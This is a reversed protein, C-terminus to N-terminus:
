REKAQPSVISILELHQDSLYEELIATYDSDWYGGCADDANAHIYEKLSLLEGTFAKALDEAYSHGNTILNKIRKFMDELTDLYANRVDEVKASCFWYTQGAEICNFEDVRNDIDTYYHQKWDPDEEKYDYNKRYCFFYGDLTHHVHPRYNVKISCSNCVCISRFAFDEFREAIRECLETDLTYLAGFICEADELNIKDVNDTNLPYWWWKVKWCPYWAAKTKSVLYYPSVTEYPSPPYSYGRKLFEEKTIIEIGAHQLLLKLIRKAQRIYEKSEEDDFAETIDDESYGFIKLFVDHWFYTACSYNTSGIRYDANWTAADGVPEELFSWTCEPDLEGFAFYEEGTDKDRALVVDGVKVALRTGVRM